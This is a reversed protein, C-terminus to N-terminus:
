ISQTLRTLYLNTSQDQLKKLPILQLGSIIYLTEQNLIHYLRLLTLVMILYIFFGALFCLYSYTNQIELLLTDIVKITEEKLIVLISQIM